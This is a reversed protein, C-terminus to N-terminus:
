YPSINRFSGPIYPRTRRPGDDNIHGTNVDGVAFIQPKQAVSLSIFPSASLSNIDLIVQNKAPISTVYGLQENLSISGYGQPVLLRCLQGVFYDMNLITTITTTIGLSINSINFQRPKFYQPKIPPNSYAAIPGTMLPPHWTM